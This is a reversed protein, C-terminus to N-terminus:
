TRTKLQGRRVDAVFTPMEATPDSLVAASGPPRSTFAWEFTLPDGDVDSSGSGDLQVTEGIFVTQDPGADAVPLSNETTIAVTDPASDTLGDNVVLQVIYPNQDDAPVDAVFTPMEANPDSLEASSGPPRSTFVWEFTLPDGDPDSSGSGDLQVTDGTTVTQDPGADAVPVRNETTIAVTDPASDAMGDNVVLQVVYPNQDDAPVDAVFTPMEATPDSLVASSGPPLSTFVWEFTLPDGDPDSSGSGDLQVTDGVSVTQDPGADAVPVRNETTIAVTDPDSDALGDNVVLQVVYLNQADAPVDAVFTPMEANPDSLVAASGPPLSTFAWEFTLPDGDPDFSGSGDLQVTDGVFVAQDPGADAVPVRNETTITVTDPASDAMGDNVVLQVVYLNQDDAAVDAVFTPMEATPDSLVASSGQPLSTFEWEFTLPDGDADFSGSGDLQVTDGVSM